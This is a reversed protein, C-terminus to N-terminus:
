TNQYFLIFILFFVFAMCLSCFYKEYKTKLKLFFLLYNGELRKQKNGGAFYLVILYQDIVVLICPKNVTLKRNLHDVTVIHMMSNIVPEM